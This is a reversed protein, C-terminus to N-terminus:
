RIVEVKIKEDRRCKVEFRNHCNPCKCTHKGKKLPLRLVTKCKPCKKYMHTNRDNWKKRILNFKNKISNRVKLYRQNEKRRRSVNKSMSRYVIIVIILTEIISLNRNNLFINILSIIVCLILGLKYLEDIGYRGYM